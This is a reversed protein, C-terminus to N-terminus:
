SLFRDPRAASFCGAPAAAPGLRAIYDATVEAIEDNADLIAAFGRPRDWFNSNYLLEPPWGKARADAEISEIKARVETPILPNRSDRNTSRTWDARDGAANQDPEHDPKPTNEPFGVLNHAPKCSPPVRHQLFGVLGVSLKSTSSKM